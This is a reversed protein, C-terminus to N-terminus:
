DVSHISGIPTYNRKRIPSHSSPLACAFIVGSEAGRRKFADAPFINILVAYSRTRAFFIRSLIEAFAFAVNCYPYANMQWRRRAGVVRGPEAGFV